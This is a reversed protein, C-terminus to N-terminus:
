VAEDTGAKRNSNRLQVIEHHARELTRVIKELDRQTLKDVKTVALTRMRYDLADLFDDADPTREAPQYHADSRVEERERRQQAALVESYSPPGPFGTM